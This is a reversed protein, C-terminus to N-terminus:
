VTRVGLRALGPGAAGWDRPLRDPSIYWLAGGAPLADECERPQALCPLRRRSTFPFLVSLIARRVTCTTKGGRGQTYLGPLHTVRTRPCPYCMRGMHHVEPLLNAM